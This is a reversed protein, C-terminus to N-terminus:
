KYTELFCWVYQVIGGVKQLGLVVNLKFHLGVLSSYDDIRQESIDVDEGMKDQNM